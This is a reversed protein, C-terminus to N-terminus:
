YAESQYQQEPYDLKLFRFQVNEDNKQKLISSASLCISYIKSVSNPSFKIFYFVNFM